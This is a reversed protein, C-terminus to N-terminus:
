VQGNGDGEWASRLEKSAGEFKTPIIYAFLRSQPECVAWAIDILSYDRNFNSKASIPRLNQAVRLDPKPGQTAAMLGNENQNPGHRFLGTKPFRRGSVPQDDCRSSRLGKALITSRVM